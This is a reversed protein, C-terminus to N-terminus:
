YSTVFAFSETFRSFINRYILQFLPHANILARANNLVYVTCTHAICLLEKHQIKKCYKNNSTAVSAGGMLCKEQVTKIERRPLYKESAHIEELRPSHFRSETINTWM